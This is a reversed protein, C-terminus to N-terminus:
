SLDLSMNSLKKLVQSFYSRHHMYDWPREFFNMTELIAENSPFTEDLFDHSCSLLTAWMPRLVPDEEVMQSPVLDPDTSSDLIAQYGIEITSISMAMGDHSQGEISSTPSPLTWPDSFYSTYFPISREVSTLMSSIAYIHHIPTSFDFTGMLSSYMRVDINETTPQSNDVVPISLGISVNQREFFELSLTPQSSFSENAYRAFSKFAECSECTQPMFTFTIMQLFNVLFSLRVSKKRARELMIMRNEMIIRTSPNIRGVEIIIEEKRNIGM